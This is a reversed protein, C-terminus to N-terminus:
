RHTKRVPERDGDLGGNGGTRARGLVRPAVAEAESPERGSRTQKLLWERFTRFARSKQEGPPYVLYFYIQYGDKLTFPVTLLGAALDAEVLSRPALAV